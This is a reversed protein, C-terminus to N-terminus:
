ATTVAPLGWNCHDEVVNLLEPTDLPRPLYDDVEVSLAAALAEAEDSLVVVPLASGCLERLRRVLMQGSPGDPLQWDLLVLGIVDREAVQLAAVGDYATEVQYGSLVLPEAIAAADAENDIVLIKPM